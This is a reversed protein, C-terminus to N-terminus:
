SADVTGRATGARAHEDNVADDGAGAAEEVDVEGRDKAYGELVGYAHAKLKCAVHTAGVHEGADVRLIVGEIPHSADLTSALGHMPAPAEGEALVRARRTTEGAALRAVMLHREEPTARALASAAIADAATGLAWPTTHQWTDLLPPSEAGIEAVRKRALEFPLELGNQVVRYVFVRQQPAGTAQPESARRPTANLPYPHGPRIPTGHPQCGYAYDIKEGWAARLLASEGGKDKPRHHQIPKGGIDYGVIEYYVCEGPRLREAFWDSINRRMGPTQDPRLPRVVRAVRRTGNVRVHPDFPRRGFWGAVKNAARQWPRLLAPVEVLGDRGSTGHVKETAWVRAGLPFHYVTRHAPPTNYHEPLAARAVQEAALQAARVKAAARQARTPKGAPQRPSRDADARRNVDAVAAPPMYKRAVVFRDPPDVLAMCGPMIEIPGVEDGDAYEPLKPAPQNVLAVYGSSGRVTREVAARFDALPIWLADTRVGRLVLNRIRPPDDLYGGLKEGTRPHRVLLGAAIAFELDLVGEAPFVVGLEGVKRDVGVVLRYGRATASVIRDAGPIPTVDELSAVVPVYSPETTM